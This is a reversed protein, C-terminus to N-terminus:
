CRRTTAAAIGAAAVATATADRLVVAAVVVAVVVTTRAVAIAVDLAPKGLIKTVAASVVTATATAVGPHWDEGAAAARVPWGPSCEGPVLTRSTWVSDACRAGALQCRRVKGSPPATSAKGGDM